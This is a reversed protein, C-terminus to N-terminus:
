ATAREPEPKPSIHGQPVAHRTPEGARDTLQDSLGDVDLALCWTGAVAVACGFGVDAPLWMLAAIAAASQSAVLLAHRKKMTHRQGLTAVGGM